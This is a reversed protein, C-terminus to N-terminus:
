PQNQATIRGCEPCIPTRLNALNYGCDCTGVSREAPFANFWAIILWVVSMGIYTLTAPLAAFFTIPAYWGGILSAAATPGVVFLLARVLPGRQLCVALIPSLVLGIACGIPIAIIAFILATPDGRSMGVVALLAFLGGTWISTLVLM